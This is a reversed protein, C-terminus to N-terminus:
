EPKTFSGAPGDVRHSELFADLDDQSYVVKKGLRFYPINPEGRSAWIALTIPEVGLYLAAERRNFKKSSFNGKM